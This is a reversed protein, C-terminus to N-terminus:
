PQGGPADFTTEERDSEGQGDLSIVTFAFSQAATDPGAIVYARVPLTADAPVEVTLERAADDRGITDTWMVAGPLGDLALRM